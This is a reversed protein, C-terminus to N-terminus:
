WLDKQHALSQKIMDQSSQLITSMKNFVARVETHVSTENMVRDRWAKYNVFSVVADEISIQGDMLKLALKECPSLDTVERHTVDPSSLDVPEKCTLSLWPVDSLGKSSALISCLIFQSHSLWEYPFESNSQLSAILLGLSYADDEVPSLQVSEEFGVYQMASRIPQSLSSIRAPSMFRVEEVLMGGYLQLTDIAMSLVYGSNLWVRGDVSFIFAGPNLSGNFTVGSSHFFKVAECVLHVTDILSDTHTDQPAKVIDDKMLDVPFLSVVYRAGDDLKIVGVPRMVSDPYEALTVMREFRRLWVDAQKVVVGPAVAVNGRPPHSPLPSLLVKTDGIRALLSGRGVDLKETISVSGIMYRAPLVDTWLPKMAEGTDANALISRLHDDTVVSHEAELYGTLFDLVDAGAIPQSELRMGDHYTGRKIHDRTVLLSEGTPIGDSFDSLLISDGGFVAGKGNPLGEYLPGVFMLGSETIRISPAHTTIPEPKTYTAVGNLRLEIM